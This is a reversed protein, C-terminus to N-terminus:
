SPAAARLVLTLAAILFAFQALAGRDGAAPAQSDLSRVAAAIILLVFLGDHAVAWGCVFMLVVIWRQASMLAAFGRNGDLQWVPLLNFLNIWAGTHAIAAYMPGGGLHAAALAAVAAGLGWMPGALGIRADEHPALRQARLRIFAGVGPIFMPASAAIGYRRLAAVHGMEHVYISLVLGAAFWMGWATWYVGFALVMSFFTSAKTLGLVLLKGKTALLVLVFKLKWLLLGLAGLGGLWKWAGTKPVDVPASVARGGVRTLADIKEGVATYQRSDIPLLAAASRWAALEAAYDGAQAAAEAATKLQNLTAAHVLRHCGPCVLLGAAVDSRCGDCRASATPSPVNLDLTTM